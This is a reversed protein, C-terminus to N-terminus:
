IYNDLTKHKLSALTITSIYISFSDSIKCFRTSLAILYGKIMIKVVFIIYEEVTLMAYTSVVIKVGYINMTHIYM